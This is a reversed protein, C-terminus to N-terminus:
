EREPGAPAAGPAQGAPGPQGPEQRSRMVLWPTPGTRWEWTALLRSDDPHRGLAAGYHEVTEDFRELRLLMAGCAWAAELDDPKLIWAARYHKLAGEHDGAEKLANGLNYNLETSRPCVRAGQRLVALGEDKRGLSRLAVGLNSWCACTEPARKLIVRYADAAAALQGDSHLQIAQQVSPREDM